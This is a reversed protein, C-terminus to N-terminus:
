KTGAGFTFAFAQLGATQPRFTLTHYGSPGDTVVHYLDHDMVTLTTLPAGDLEVTVTIPSSGAGAVLNVEAGRYRLVFVGGDPAEAGQDTIAWSGQLAYTDQPLPDPLSYTQTGKTSKEPSANFSAGGFALGFHIEPTLAATLVPDSGAPAARPADSPLGLLTRVDNEKSDYDGEGFRVQRLRGQRDTFYEAPWYQNSFANWIAMDDDLAVPWTVGYHEVGRAVNEHDKEFDFEPSHVGIILLGDTKYRDYLAKLHPITRQCNVCSYTWFDFIVVKGALDSKTLPASNIWGKAATVSPVSEQIVQLDGTQAIDKPEVTTAVYVSVGAIVALAAAAVLYLRRNM